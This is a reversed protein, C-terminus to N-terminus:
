SLANQSCTGMGVQRMFKLAFTLHPAFGAAAHDLMADRLSRSASEVLGGGERLFINLFEDSPSTEPQEDM